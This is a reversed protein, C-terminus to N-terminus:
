PKRTYIEAGGTATKKVGNEIMVIKHDKPNEDQVYVQHLDGLDQKILFMLMRSGQLVIRYTLIPFPPDAPAGDPEYTLTLTDGSIKYPGHSAGGDGEGTKFTGDSLFFLALGNSKKWTGVLTQPTLPKTAARATATHQAPHASIASLKSSSLLVLIAFVSAYSPIRGIARKQM